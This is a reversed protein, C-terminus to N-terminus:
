QAPYHTLGGDLASVFHDSSTSLIACRNGAIPLTAIGRIAGVARNDRWRVSGDPSICVLEGDGTGAVVMEGGPSAAMCRINPLPLTWQPADGGGFAHIGAANAAVLDVVVRKETDSVLPGEMATVPLDGPVKWTRNSGGKAADLEVIAGNKLGVLWTHAEVASRGSLPGCTVAAPLDIRWREAGQADFAAAAWREVGGPKSERVGAVCLPGFTGRPGSLRGIRGNRLGTKIRWVESGVQALRLLTGDQLLALVTESEDTQFSHARLADAVPPGGLSGEMRLGGDGDLFWFNGKDDGVVAVAGVATSLAVPGQCLNGKLRRKWLLEGRLENCAVDGMPSACFVRTTSSKADRVTAPAGNPVGDTEARWVCAPSISLDFTRALPPLDPAEFSLSFRYTGGLQSMGQLTREFTAKEGQVLSLPFLAAGVAHSEPALLRLSGRLTAPSPNRLGFRVATRAPGPELPKDTRLWLSAPLAYDQLPLGGILVPADTAPVTAVGDKPMIYDKQDTDLRVLPILEQRTEIRFPERLGGWAVVLSGDKNILVDADADQFPLRGARWAGDFPSTFVFADLGAPPPPMSRVRAAGSQHLGAFQEVEEAPVSWWGGNPADVAMYDNSRLLAMDRLLRFQEVPYRLQPTASQADLPNLCLVIGGSREWGTRTEKDLREQLLRNARDAADALVAAETVTATDRLVLRLRLEAASGLAEVAGEFFSFWLPGADNLNDALLLIDGKPCARIFARLTRVAFRRAGARLEEETQGPRYGSWRFDHIPGGSRTDLALGRLGTQSCFEGALAFRDRARAAETGGTFWAADPTLAMQLFNAEIGSDTLRRRAATIEQALAEWQPPHPPQPKASANEEGPPASEDPFAALDDLIGQFLFGSVGRRKWEEAHNAAWTANIPTLFLVQPPADGPVSPRIIRPTPLGSVSVAAKQEVAPATFCFLLLVWVPLVNLWTNLCRM